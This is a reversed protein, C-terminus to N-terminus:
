VLVHHLVDKGLLILVFIAEYGGSLEGVPMIFKLTEGLRLAGAYFCM